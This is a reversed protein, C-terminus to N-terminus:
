GTLGAAGASRMSATHFVIRLRMWNKKRGIEKETSMIKM